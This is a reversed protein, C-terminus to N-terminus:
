LAKSITMDTVGLFEGRTYEWVGIDKKATVCYKPLQWYMDDLVSLKLTQM